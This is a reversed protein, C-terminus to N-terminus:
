IHKLVWDHVLDSYLETHFQMLQHPANEMCVVDVPGGVSEAVGQVVEPTAIPDNAGSSILVPKTNDQPPVVPDFQFLSAWSALDYSWTTYPDLRISAAAGSYGYDKDFDFFIGIDLRAARGLNELVKAVAPDRWPAAMATVWPTGPIAPAGMLILGRVADSHLSSFAAAGGLSSGMAFVPLGTEDSVHEAYMTAADVWQAMTWQGRPQNTTSQGHGPADYAWIDVGKNAHHVCFPNYVGGHGAIGHSIVLAYKADKGRYRHAVIEDTVHLEKLM